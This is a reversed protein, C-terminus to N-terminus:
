NRRKPQKRAEAAPLYIPEGTPLILTCGTLTPDDDQAMGAVVLAILSARAEDDWQTEPMAALKRRRAEGM